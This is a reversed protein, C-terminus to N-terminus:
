KMVSVVALTGNCLGAWLKGKIALLWVSVKSNFSGIKMADTGSAINAYFIDSRREVCFARSTPDLLMYKVEDQMM